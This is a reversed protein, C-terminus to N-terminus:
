KPVKRWDIYKFNQTSGKPANFGDQVVLLGEPYQPGLAVPTVALGDTEQAGDIGDQQAVVRFRDVFDAKKGEDSLRYVAFSDNGQSSVILTREGAQDIYLDLGEVDAAMGSDKEVEDLLIPANGTVKSGDVTLEVIWFGKAEEGVYLLGREDDVTCGELQSEFTAVLNVDAAITPEINALTYAYVEGTKYTVFGIANGQVMGMCAGYPEEIPSEVRGLRRMAGANDLAFVGLTNDARDSTIMLDGLFGGISVGQRLDVNNPLGDALYQIQQGTLDYSVLGSQKDTGIILSRQADGPHIWIAPDDAADDGSPVPATEVDAVVNVVLEQDKYVLADRDQSCATLFFAPALFGLLLVRATM